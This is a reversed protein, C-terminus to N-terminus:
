IRAVGLFCSFSLLFFELHRAAVVASFYHSVRALVDLLPDPVVGERAVQFVVVAVEPTEESV